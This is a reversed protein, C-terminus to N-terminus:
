LSRRQTALFSLHHFALFPLSLGLGFHPSYSLTSPNLCQNLAEVSSHTRSLSGCYIKHLSPCTKGPLMQGDKEYYERIHIMTKGQFDDVTFGATRQLRYDLVLVGSGPVVEGAKKGQRDPRNLFSYM